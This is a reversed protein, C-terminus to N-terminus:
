YHNKVEYFFLLHRTLSRVIRVNLGAIKGTLATGVDVSKVTTMKDGGVKQVAYGLAKESRKIGLATVVVEELNKSDEQLIISLTNRNNVAVDKNQYGIYSFVLHANAPVEISFHGDIDTVTGTSTSGKLLVNAGIIPINSKDVVTGTVIILPVQPTSTSLDFYSIPQKNKISHISIYNDVMKYTLGNDSLVAELVEKVTRNKAEVKVSQSLNIDTDGYLFLYDTQKEIESILEGFSLNSKNITIRAEQSHTDIAHLQFFLVFIFFVSLRMIRIIHTLEDQKFVYCLQLLNKKM